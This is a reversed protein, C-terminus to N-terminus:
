TERLRPDSKHKEKWYNKLAEATKLSFEIRNPSDFDIIERISKAEEEVIEKQQPDSETQESEKEKPSSEFLKKIRDFNSLGLTGTALIAASGLLFSRRSIGKKPKSKEPIDGQYSRQPNFKEKM